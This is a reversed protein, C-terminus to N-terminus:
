AAEPLDVRTRPLYRGGDLQQLYRVLGERVDCRLEFNKGADASSVLARLEVTRETANTMMLGCVRGDWLPHSKTVRELEARLLDVPVSYDAYIFATGMIEPAVKTWNQFPEDLFRTIPVVLRRQDWVRVVVYTLTIEEIWGWENEVIVTDGIRIPQTLSLQIGALLTGISKQAALGIVIGAIGASALLSAGVNRVLEFQMLVLSGGVVAVIVDVVRRMVRVQTRVGRERAPDQTDRTLQQELTDAGFRVLRFALWTLTAVALTRLLADAVVQAPVTLRLAVLMAAFLGLTALYRAPPQVADVLRGDWGVRTRRAVRRALAALLAVILAGAGWALAGAAALGLWQWAEVEILRWRFLAEPLVEGAWGAGHEAYLAPIAAVTRRSVRWGDGARALELAVTGQGLPLRGVVDVAAGDDPHGAPEDSIEDWDIWIQRDLVFKLQRALAAGQSAPLASLDMAQAARAHDGDRAADVFVRLARRPTSLDEQAQAPPSLLVLLGAVLSGVALRRARVRM